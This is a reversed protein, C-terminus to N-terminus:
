FSSFDLELKSTNFVSIQKKRKLNSFPPLKEHTYEMFSFKLLNPISVSTYTYNRADAQSDTPSFQKYFFTHQMMVVTTTTTTMMMMMMVMMMMMMMMM